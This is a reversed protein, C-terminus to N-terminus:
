KLILAYMDRHIRPNYKFTLTYESSYSDSIFIQNSTLHNLILASVFDSM